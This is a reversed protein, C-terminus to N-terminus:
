ILDSNANAWNAWNAIEKVSNAMKVSTTFM